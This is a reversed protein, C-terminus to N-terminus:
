ALEHGIDLDLDRQLTLILLCNYANHTCNLIYNSNFFQQASRTNCAVTGRDLEMLKSAVCEAM